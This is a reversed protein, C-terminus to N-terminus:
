GCPALAANLRDVLTSMSEPTRDPGVWVVRPRPFHGVREVPFTLAPGSVQRAQDILCRRTDADVNGIFALTLHINEPQMRRGGGVALAKQLRTLAERTQGDPWLAFFLRYTEPRESM